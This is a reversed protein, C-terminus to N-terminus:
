GKVEVSSVLLLYQFQTSVIWDFSAPIQFNQEFSFSFGTGVWGDLLNQVLM